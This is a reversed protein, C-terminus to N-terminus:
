FKYGFKPDIVIGYVGPIQYKFCVAFGDGFMRSNTPLNWNGMDAPWVQYSFENAELDSVNGFKIRNGYTLQLKQIGRILLGKLMGLIRSFNKPDLNRWSSEIEGTIMM